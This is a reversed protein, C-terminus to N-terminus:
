AIRIETVIGALSPRKQRLYYRSPHPDIVDEVKGSIWTSGAPRGCKRPILASTRGGEEALRRIWRWVTARSVGLEWVAVRIGSELSGTGALYGLFPPRLVAARRAAVAGSAGFEDGDSEM